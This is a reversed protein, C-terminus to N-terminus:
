FYILFPLEKKIRRITLETNASALSPAIVAAEKLLELLTASVLRRKERTDHWAACHLASLLHHTMFLPPLSPPLSPLHVGGRDRLETREERVALPIARCTVPVAPPPWDSLAFPASSTPFSPALPFLCPWTILRPLAGGVEHICIRGRKIVAQTFFFGAGHNM